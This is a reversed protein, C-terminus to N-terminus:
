RAARKVVCETGAARQFLGLFPDRCLAAVWRSKRLRALRDFHFRRAAAVDGEDVGVLGAHESDVEACAALLGVVLNIVGGADHEIPPGAILHARSLDDGADLEARRFPISLLHPLPEQRKHAESISGRGGVRKHMLVEVGLVEIMMGANLSSDTIPLVIASTASCKWGNSIMTTLSPDVSRVSSITRWLAARRIRNGSFLPFPAATLRPTISAAPFMMAKMSASM